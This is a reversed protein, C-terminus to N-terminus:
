HLSPRPREKAGGVLPLSAHHVLMRWDGERMVYVNTALVRSPEGSRPGSPRISEEVLHVALDEAQRTSVVRYEITPPSASSFIESWSQVVRERGQILPGGPHICYAGPDEAWLGRMLGLDLRSFAEYFRREAATAENANM